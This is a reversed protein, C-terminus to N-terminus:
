RSDYRSRHGPDFPTIPRLSKIGIGLRDLEGPTQRCSDSSRARVQLAPSSSGSSFRKAPTSLSPWSAWFSRRYLWLRMRLGSAINTRRDYVVCIRAWPGSCPPPLLTDSITRLQLHIIGYPLPCLPMPSCLCFRGVALHFM